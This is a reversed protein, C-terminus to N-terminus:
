MDLIIEYKKVEMIDLLISFFNELLLKRFGLATTFQLIQDSRPALLLTQRLASSALIPM